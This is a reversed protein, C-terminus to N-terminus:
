ETDTKVAPKAERLIKYNVYSWPVVIVVPIFNATSNGIIVAVCVAVIGYIIVALQAKAAMISERKIVFRYLLAPLSYAAITIIFSLFVSLWLGSETSSRSLGLFSVESTDSSSKDNLLTSSIENQISSIKNQIEAKKGALSSIERVLAERSHIVDDSPMQVPETLTGIETIPYIIPIGAFTISDIIQKVDSDMYATIEGNMPRLFFRIEKGGQVTFYSLEDIYGDKGYDVCIRALKTQGLTYIQTTADMPTGTWTMDQIVMLLDDDSAYSSFDRATVDHVKLTMIYDWDYPVIQLYASRQKLIARAEEADYRFFMLNPDNDAINRSLVRLNSPIGVTMNLDDITYTKLSGGHALENDPRTPMHEGKGNVGNYYVRDLPREVPESLYGVDYDGVSATVDSFVVSDVVSRLLAERESLLAASAGGLSIIIQSGNQFTVYDLEYLVKGNEMYESVSKLFKTQARCYVQDTIKIIKFDAGVGFDEATELVEPVTMASYDKMSPVKQAMVMIDFSKDGATASIIPPCKIPSSGDQVDADMGTNVLMDAPLSFTIGAKEMTYTKIDVALAPVALLICMLVM